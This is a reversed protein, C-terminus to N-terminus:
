DKTDKPGSNEGVAQVCNIKTAYLKKTNQLELLPTDLHLSQLVAAFPRLDWAQRM